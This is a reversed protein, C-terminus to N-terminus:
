QKFMPASVKSGNNQNGDVLDDDEQRSRRQEWLLLLVGVSACACAGLTPLMAVNCLNM